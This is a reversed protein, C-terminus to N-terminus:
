KCCHHKSTEAHSFFIVFPPWFLLSADSQQLAKQSIFRPSVLTFAFDASHKVASGTPHFSCCMPPYVYFPLVLSCSLSFSLFLSFSLSPPLFSPLSLVSVFVVKLSFVGETSSPCWLHCACWARRQWLDALPGSAAGEASAVPPERPCPPMGVHRLLHLWLVGEAPDPRDQHRVPLLLAAPGPVGPQVLSRSYILVSM